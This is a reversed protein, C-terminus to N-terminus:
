DEGATVFGMMKKFDVMNGLVGKCIYALSSEATISRWPPLFGVANALSSIPYFVEILSGEHIIGELM